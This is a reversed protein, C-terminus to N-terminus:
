HPSGYRSGAITRSAGEPPQSRGGTTDITLDDAFVQRMGAWDKSDM